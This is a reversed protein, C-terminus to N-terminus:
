IRDIAVSLSVQRFLERPTCSHPSEGLMRSLDWARAGALATKWWGGERPLKEYSRWRGRSLTLTLSTLNVSLNSNLSYKTIRVDDNYTM